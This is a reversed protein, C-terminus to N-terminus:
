GKNEPLRNEQRLVELFADQFLKSQQRLFAIHQKLDENERKLYDNERLIKERQLKRNVAAVEKRDKGRLHRPDM